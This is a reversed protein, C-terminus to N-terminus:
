IKKLEISKIVYQRIFVEILLVLFYGQQKHFNFRITKSTISLSKITKMSFNIYTQHTKQMYNGM